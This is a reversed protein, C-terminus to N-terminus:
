ELKVEKKRQDDIYKAVAQENVSGISEVYYSPSWLHCGQKKWYSTQLEPCERFLHWASIGKLWRMINTVSLKPPASVLLHIRDDKGIEMRAITFGYKSAIDYLSQKM